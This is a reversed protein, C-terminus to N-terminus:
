TEKSFPSSSQTLLVHAARSLTRTGVGSDTYDTSFTINGEPVEKRQVGLLARGGSCALFSTCFSSFFALSSKYFGERADNWWCDWNPQVGTTNDLM